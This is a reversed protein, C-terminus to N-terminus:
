QNDATEVNAWFVVSKRVTDGRLVSHPTNPPMMIVYPLESSQMFLLSGGQRRLRKDNTLEIIFTHANPFATDTHESIHDDPAYENYRAHIIDVGVLEQLHPYVPNNPKIHHHSFSASLKESQEIFRNLKKNPLEKLWDPVIM